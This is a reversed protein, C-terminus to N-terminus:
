GDLDVIVLGRTGASGTFGGSGGVGAATSNLALLSVADGCRGVGGASAGAAAAGLSGAVSVRTGTMLGQALECGPVALRMIQAGESSLQASGAGAIVRTLDQSSVIISTDASAVGGLLSAAALASVGATAATRIFKPISLNRVTRGKKRKTSHLELDPIPGRFRQLSSM